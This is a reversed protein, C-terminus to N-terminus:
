GLLEPLEQLRKSVILKFEIRSSRPISTANDIMYSLQFTKNYCHHLTGLHRTSIDHLIIKLSPFLTEVNAAIFLLATAKSIKRATSSPTVASNSPVVANPDARM